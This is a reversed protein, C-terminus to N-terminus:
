NRLKNPKDKSPKAIALKTAHQKKEGKSPEAAEPALSPRLLHCLHAVAKQGGHKSRVSDTQMQVSHHIIIQMQM